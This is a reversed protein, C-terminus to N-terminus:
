ELSFVVTVNDSFHVDEALYPAPTPAGDAMSKMMGRMLVPTPTQTQYQISYVKGLKAGYAKALEAAKSQSDTIAQQRVKNQLESQDKVGYQISQVATLGSKLAIDIIQGLRDLQYLRVSVDRSAKYGNPKPPQGSSYLYEPFLTLNGATLDQSKFGAGQLAGVFSAVRADVGQRAVQTEKDQVAINFNLTAMDAPVSLEASGTTLVHPAAPVGLEQAPLNLSLLLGIALLTKLM